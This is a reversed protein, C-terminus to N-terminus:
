MLMLISNLLPILCAGDLGAIIETNGRKHKIIDEITRKLFMENRSPIIISLDM